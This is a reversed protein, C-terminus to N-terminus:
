YGRLQASVVRLNAVKLDGTAFCYTFRFKYIHLINVIFHVNYVNTFQEKFFRVQTLLSVVNMKVDHLAIDAFYPAIFLKSRERPSRCRSKRRM